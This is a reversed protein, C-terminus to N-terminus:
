AVSGEIITRCISAFTQAHVRMDRHRTVTQRGADALRGREEPNALLRDVHGLLEEENGGILINHGHQAPLGRVAFPTAVVPRGMAWAELITTKVGTGETAPVVIVRSRAYYPRLDEVTGSVLAGYQQLSQIAPAPDRGVFAWRWCADDWSGNRWREFLSLAPRYTRWESMRGFLGLDIDETAPLPRYYECDLSHPIVDIRGPDIESSFWTKEHESIVVTRGRRGIARYLHRVRRRETASLWARVGRARGRLASDLARDWGEELVFVAPVDSPMEFALHATNPLFYIALAPRHSNLYSRLGEVRRPYAMYPLDDWIYHRLRRLRGAAGHANLPNAPHPEIWYHCVPLEVPLFEDPHWESDARHLAIVDLPWSAALERLFHFYRASFGNSHGLLPPADLFAWIPAGTVRKPAAEAIENERARQVRGLASGQPVESDSV